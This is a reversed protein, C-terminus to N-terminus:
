QTLEGERRIIAEARLADDPCDVSALSRNRLDVEVMRIPIGNELARLQELKELKELEGEALNCFEKLVSRRYGYLGIHLFRAHDLEHGSRVHPILTKSFYLANRFRDCVVLTGSTSGLRKAEVMSKLSEGTLKVMPSALKVTPDRWMQEAVDDIIWPPTLVADGQLNIIYEASIQSCELAQSVRDTGTRCDSSTLIAEAGVRDAENAIEESDTAILVKQACKSAMAIRWVRELLTRGMIKVLPKGPFRTSGLRAPIVIVTSEKETM